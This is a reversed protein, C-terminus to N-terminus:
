GMMMLQDVSNGSTCMKNIKASDLAGNTYPYGYPSGSPNAANIIYVDKFLPGMSQVIKICSDNEVKNMLVTVCQQGCKQGPNYVTGSAGPVFSLTRTTKSISQPIAIEAHLGGSYVLDYKMTKPIILAFGAASQASSPTYRGDQTAVTRTNAVILSINTTFTQIEAASNASQFVGFTVAGAGIVLAFVLIVELLGFGISKRKM